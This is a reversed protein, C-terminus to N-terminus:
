TTTSTTSIGGFFLRLLVIIHCTLWSIYLPVTYPSEAIRTKDKFAQEQWPRSSQDPPNPMELRIRVPKGKGHSSSQDPPNPM